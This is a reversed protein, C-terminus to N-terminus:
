TLYERRTCEKVILLMLFKLSKFKTGVALEEITKSWEEQAMLAVARCILKTAREGNEKLTKLVMGVNVQSM